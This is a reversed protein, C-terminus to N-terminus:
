PTTGEETPTGPAAPRGPQSGEYFARLLAIDMGSGGRDASLHRYIDALAAFLAEGAPEGAVFAGVEEMEGVYRYAKDFMRLTAPHLFEVLGARTDLLERLVTEGAGFRMAALAMVSALATYGKTFGSQCMKVASAAGAPADMVRIDLGPRAIEALAPAGPGSAYIAPSPQSPAPPPGCVAGDAFTCGADEVLQGIAQVTAPSVANLDAYLPARTQQRFLPALSQALALAQDPPVLSVFLDVRAMDAWTAPIMGAAKARAASSASRGELVTLVHHGQEVLRQAVGAGMTGQAVVGIRQGM